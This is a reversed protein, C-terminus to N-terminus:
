IRARDEAKLRNLREKTKKISSRDHTMVDPKRVVTITPKFDEPDQSSRRQSEMSFPALDDNFMRSSKIQLEGRNLAVRRRTSSGGYNSERATGVIEQVQATNSRSQFLHKFRSSEHGDSPRASGIRSSVSPKTWSM